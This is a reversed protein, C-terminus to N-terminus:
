LTRALTFAYVSKAGADFLAKACARVTSCTTALDDVLLVRQGKVIQSDAHFTNKVNERREVATLRTQSATNRIKSLGRDSFKVRFYRALPRALLASQNYGRERKRKPALPVPIVMDFHWDLVAISDAMRRYFIAALGIDNNYKMRHIATRLAGDFVGWSQITLGDIPENEMCDSCEGRTSLPLGCVPCVPRPIRRTHADCDACWLTGNAGCGACTPPYLVDVLEWFRHYIGPGPSPQGTTM